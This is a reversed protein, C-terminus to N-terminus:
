EDGRCAGEYTAEVHVQIAGPMGTGSMTMDVVYNNQLDGNMVTRIHGGGGEGTCEAEYVLGEATPQFGATSTCNSNPDSGLQELDGATVCQAETTQRGMVTITQRWRGLRLQQPSAAPASASPAAEGSAAQNAPPSCAAIAVAIAFLFVARM